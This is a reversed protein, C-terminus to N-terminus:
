PSHLFCVSTPASSISPNLEIRLLDEIDMIYTLSALITGTDKGKANPGDHYYPEIIVRFDGNAMFPLQSEHIKTLSLIGNYFFIDCYVVNSQLHFFDLKYFM